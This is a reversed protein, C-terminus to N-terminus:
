TELILKVVGKCCVQASFLLPFCIKTGVHLFFSLVFLLDTINLWVTLGVIVHIDSRHTFRRAEHDHNLEPKTLEHIGPKQMVKRFHDLLKNNTPQFGAYIFIFFWPPPYSFLCTVQQVGFWLRTKYGWLTSISWHFINQIKYWRFLLYHLSWTFFVSFNNFGELVSVSPAPIM